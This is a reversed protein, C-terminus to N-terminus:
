IIIVDMVVIHLIHGLVEEDVKVARWVTMKIGLVGHRLECHISWHTGRELLLSWREWHTGIKLLWSVVILLWCFSYNIIIDDLLTRHSV